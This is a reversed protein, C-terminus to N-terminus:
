EVDNLQYILNLIVTPNFVLIHRSDCFNYSNPKWWLSDTIQPEASPSILNIKAVERRGTTLPLDGKRIFKKNSAHHPSCDKVISSGKTTLLYTSKNNNTRQTRMPIFKHAHSSNLRETEVRHKKNSEGMNLDLLPMM